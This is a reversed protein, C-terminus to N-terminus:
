EMRAPRAHNGALQIADLLLLLSQGLSTGDSIVGGGWPDLGAASADVTKHLVLQAPFDKQAM